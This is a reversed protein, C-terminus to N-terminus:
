LASLYTTNKRNDVREAKLIKIFLIISWIIFLLGLIYPLVNFYFSDIEAPVEIFICESYAGFGETVIKVLAYMAPQYFYFM